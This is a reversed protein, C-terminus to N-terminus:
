SGEEMKVGVYKVETAIVDGHCQRGGFLDTINENEDISFSLVNEYVRESASLIRKRTVEYNGALSYVLEYDDIYNNRNVWFDWENKSTFTATVEYQETVKFASFDKKKTISFDITKIDDSVSGKSEYTASYDNEQMKLYSIADEETPFDIPTTEVNTQSVRNLQWGGNDYYSYYMVIDSNQQYDYANGNTAAEVKCYVIDEKRDYDSLRNEIQFSSITMNETTYLEHNELDYKLEEESKVSKTSNNKSFVFIIGFTLLIGALLLGWAKYNGKSPNQKITPKEEEVEDNMLMKGCQECFRIGMGYDKQCYQCKM